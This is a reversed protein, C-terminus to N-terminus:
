DVFVPNFGVDQQLISMPASLLSFDMKMSVEEQAPIQCM